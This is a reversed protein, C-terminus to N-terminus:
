FPQYAILYLFCNKEYNLLEMAIKSKITIKKLYRCYQNIRANM